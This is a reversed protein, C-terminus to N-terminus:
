KCYKKVDEEAEKVKQALDEEPIVALNGSADMKRIRPKYTLATRKNKAMTCNAKKIKESQTLPAKKTSISADINTDEELALTEPSPMDTPSPVRSVVEGPPPTESYHVQGQDDTWQYGASFVNFSLSLLALSLLKTKMIMKRM